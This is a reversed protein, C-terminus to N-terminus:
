HKLKANLFAYIRRWAEAAVEANFGANNPNMFAHGVEPYVTVRVDRNLKQAQREFIKVSAAPIGRDKEGFIGLVPCGIKKIEEEEFVLRGYCVVAAALEPLTMAAMLAYGGGMCWGICGIKTANVRLDQSLFGFASRLDRAVRGEPLGRMLEHAEDSSAAVRGRYLDVAMAVYGQRAFEDANHKIWENLGWWEHILLLAPFPGDGAPTALYASVTDGGSLYQVTRTILSDQASATRVQLCLVSLVVSMSKAFPLKRARMM